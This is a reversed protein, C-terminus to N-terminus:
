LTRLYHPLAKLLSQWARLVEAVSWAQAICGNPIHPPEADFIESISGVGAEQLHAQLPELFSLAKEANGYVRYHALVFPGLLWPWVTGQHYASDRQLPNGGYSPSYGPENPALTRLGYPTLLTHQVTTVVAKQEARTLPSHPLSVAFIQNPRLSTDPGDETILDYLGLGDTRIFAARFSRAMREAHRQYGRGSEGLKKALQSMICLANYWLANVEVPKGVRPTVVWDGIKVDMWTLQVGPEGAYLLGDSPDVHIGYRTGHRYWHLIEALTSWLIRVLEIGDAAVQVYEWIAQFYWLAADVTNYEAEEGHEPFRNPLMGQDVYRAYSLLIDRAVERRGTTLCLGPLSIMTDRGWDAFWHYGALITSRRPLTAEKGNELANGEVVFADAALALARSFDDQYKGCRLLRQLREVHRNWAESPPEVDREISAVFVVEEGPYLIFHFHGPCYLDEKWDFGREMERLHEINKHWYDAPEWEGKALLRLVPSDQTARIQVEEKRVEVLHPFGAWFHMEAHYDKWCVLPTLRLAVPEEAERLTYRIFTTNHAYGMWVCKELQLNPCPRFYFTPAPYAEFRELFRYGRPYITGPYQNTTLEYEVGGACIKEELRSLLTMRGTPPTLAAVLLAHYRRTNAGSLSCSAYGGIGNTVLWERRSAAEFNTLVDAGISIIPWGELLFM